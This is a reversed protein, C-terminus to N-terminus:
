PQRSIRVTLEGTNDSASGRADRIYFELPQGTGTVAVRYVHDDRYSLTGGSLDILGRGDVKLGQALKKRRAATCKPNAFCEVADVHHPTEGWADYTGSVELVYSVGAELPNSYVPQPNRASVVIDQSTWEGSSAESPNTALPELPPESANSAPEEVSGKDSLTGAEEIHPTVEHVAAATPTIEPDQSTVSSTAAVLPAAVEASMDAGSISRTDVVVRQSLWVFATTQVGPNAPSKVTVQHPGILMVGSRHLGPTAAAVPEGDILVEVGANPEARVEISGQITFVMVALCPVAALLWLLDPSRGQSHTTRSM